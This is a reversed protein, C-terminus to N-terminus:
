TVVGKESMLNHLQRYIDTADGGFGKLLEDDAATNTIDSFIARLSLARLDRSDFVVKISGHIYRKDVPSDLSALNPVIKPRNTCSLWSSM